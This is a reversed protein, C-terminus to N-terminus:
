QLAATCSFKTHIKYAIMKQLSLKKKYIQMNSSFIRKKLECKIYLPSYVEVTAALVSAVLM